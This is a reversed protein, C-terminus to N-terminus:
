VRLLHCRSSLEYARLGWLRGEALLIPSGPTARGYLSSRLVGNHRLECFEGEVLKPSYFNLERGIPHAPSLKTAGHLHTLSV